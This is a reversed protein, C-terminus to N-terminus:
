RQRVPRRGVYLFMLGVASLLLGAMAWQEFGGSGPEGTVPLAAPATRAPFVEAVLTPQPPPPPPPPTARQAAVEAMPTPSPPVPTATPPVPTATPEPTPGNWPRWKPEEDPPPGPPTTATAAATATATPTSTPDSPPTNTAESPPTNTAESPPESTSTPTATATSTATPEATGTATPEVTTTPTATATSTATPEATGTATPEVTNTPTPEVTSTATPEVTNTPTPEVTNTPTPTATNTATPPNTPPDIDYCFSIHSIKRFSGDEKKPAYLQADRDSEPNYVFVNAGKAKVIVEDTGLNSSWDFLTKDNYLTVSVVYGTRGDSYTHTGPNLDREEVKLEEPYGRDKCDPNGAVVVPDVSAASIAGSQFVLVFSFSLLLGLALTFTTIRKTTNM